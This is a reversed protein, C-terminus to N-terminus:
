RAAFLGGFAPFTISRPVQGGDCFPGFVDRRQEDEDKQNKDDNGAKQQHLQPRLYQAMRKDTRENAWESAGSM